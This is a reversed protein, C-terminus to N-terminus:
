RNARREIEGARRHEDNDMRGNEEAKEGALDREPGRVIRVRENQVKEDDAHEDTDAM